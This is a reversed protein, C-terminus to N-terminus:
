LKEVVILCNSDPLAAPVDREDTLEIKAALHDRYGPQLYSCEARPLEVVRARGAWGVIAAVYDDYTMVGYQERVEYPFSAPGWTYTYLFEM